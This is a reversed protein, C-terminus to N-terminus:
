ANLFAKLRGQLTAGASTDKIISPLAYRVWEREGRIKRLKDGHMQREQEAQAAQKIDGKFVCIRVDANCELRYFYRELVKPWTDMPLKFLVEGIFNKDESPQKCALCIGINHRILNPPIPAGCISTQGNRDVKKPCFYVKEDGGGNLAGGNTWAMLVGTVPKTLSRAETFFLDLVFKAKLQDRETIQGMLAKVQGEIEPSVVMDNGKAVMDFINANDVFLGENETM